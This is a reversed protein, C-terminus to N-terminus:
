LGPLDHDKAAAETWDKIKGLTEPAVSDCFDIIRCRDFLLGADSVANYWNIRPLAEAIFFMRIPTFAPQNRLWKKCFADPQLQALQDKYNTGTKCQGFGILKGAAGDAFSKWVVIDLKGDKEKLPTNNPKKFGGGEGIKSCLDDVKDPFTASEVATGFVLSEARAGLYERAVEAALEELLLTGDYGSYCRNANMNLRTALLLYKYIVAKSEQCDQRVRLTYGRQDLVFPYGTRCFEQRQSLESYAADVVEEATEEEPVGDSYDNEELRGLDQLTATISRSGRQWAAIEVFDALENLDAQASPVGPWKFM